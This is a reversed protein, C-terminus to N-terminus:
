SKAVLGGGVAENVGPNRLRPQINSALYNKTSHLQGAYQLISLPMGLREGSNAPPEGCGMVGVHCGAIDGSVALHRRPSVTM